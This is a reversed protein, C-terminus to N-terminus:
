TAPKQTPILEVFLKNEHTLGRILNSPLLCATICNCGEINLDTVHRRLKTNTTEPIAMLQYEVKFNFDVMGDDSVRVTYRMNTEGDVSIGTFYFTTGTGKTISFGTGEDIGMEIKANENKDGPLYDYWLQPDKLCKMVHAPEAKIEMGEDM